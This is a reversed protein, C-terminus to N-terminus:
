AEEECCYVYAVEENFETDMSEGRVRVAFVGKSDTWINGM